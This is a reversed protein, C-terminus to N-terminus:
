EIVAVVTQALLKQKSTLGASTQKTVKAYDDIFGLVGFAATVGSVIWIYPNTLDAWLLVAVGIFLGLWKLVRAMGGNHFSLNEPRATSENGGTAAERPAMGMVLLKRM